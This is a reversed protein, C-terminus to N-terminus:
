AQSRTLPVRAITLAMIREPAAQERLIRCIEDVTAGTTMVDDLVLVRAGAIRSKEQLAFAGRVNRARERQDLGFQPATHRIRRLGRFVPIGLRRSLLRSLLLTQDFGRERKRKPHLPAPAIIDAQLLDRERACLGALREVLPGALRRYGEFKYKRILERLAGEYPGTSRAFDFGHRQARCASCVAHEDSLSAALGIGCYRCIPPVHGPLASACAHCLPSFDRNAVWAGCLVCDQPFLLAQCFCVAADYLRM